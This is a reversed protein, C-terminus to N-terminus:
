LLRSMKDGSQVSDPVNGGGYDLSYENSQRFSEEEPIVTQADLYKNFIRSQNNGAKQNEMSESRMGQASILAETATKQKSGSHQSELRKSDRALVGDAEQEDYVHDMVETTINKLREKAAEDLEM